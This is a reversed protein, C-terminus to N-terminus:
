DDGGNAGNGDAEKHAKRGIVGRKSTRFFEVIESLEPIGGMETQVKELAEAQGLESRYILRYAEKIATRTGLSVKNRRLGVTNIGRIIMPRGDVMAFPPMDQRTASFGSVMLMRGLRCHQHVTCLGGMVVNDGVQVHGALTVANAFIVGNGIKCDHGIHVNAMLFSDNGIITLGTKTARHITVYERLVVRDGIQVGTPEGKYGLDQPELGVCVGPSFNCNAGITTHGDIVVHAGIKSGSGIKVNPGIVSYPGIEASDDIQAGEHVIATKHVLTSM